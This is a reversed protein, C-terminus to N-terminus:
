ETEAQPTFLELLKELTYGDRQLCAGRHWAHCNFVDIKPYPCDNMHWNETKAHAIGELFSPTQWMAYHYECIIHSYYYERSGFGFLLSGCSWYWWLGAKSNSSHTAGFQKFWDLAEDTLMNEIKKTVRINPDTLAYLTAFYKYEKM